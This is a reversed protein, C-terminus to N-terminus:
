EDFGLFVAVQEGGVHRLVQEGQHDGGLARDCQRGEVLFQCRSCPCALWAPLDPRQQIGDNGLCFELEFGIASARRTMSNFEECAM